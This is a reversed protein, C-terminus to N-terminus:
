TPASFFAPARTCADSARILPDAGVSLGEQGSSAKRDAKGRCGKQRHQLYMLVSLRKTPASPVDPAQTPCRSGAQASAARASPFCMTMPRQEVRLTCGSDGLGAATTESDVSEGTTEAGEHPRVTLELRARGSSFSGCCGSSVCAYVRARVCVGVRVCLVCLCVRACVCVRVCACVQDGADDDIAYVRLERLSSRTHTRPGSTSFVVLLLRTWPPSEVSV